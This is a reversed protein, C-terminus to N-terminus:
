KTSKTELARERLYLYMPLAFSIGSLFVGVIPIWIWKVVVKKRDFFMFLVIVVGTLLADIAIGSAIQNAFMESIMLKIDSGNQMSWPVFQTYPLIVGFIALVLYINKKM